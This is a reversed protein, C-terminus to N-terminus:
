KFKKNIKVHLGINKLLKARANFKKFSEKACYISRLLNKRYKIWQRGIEIMFVFPFFLQNNRYFPYRGTLKLWSETDTTKNMSTFIDNMLMEPLNDDLNSNLSIELGFFLHCTLLLYQYFKFLEISTITSDIYHFDLNDYYTNFFLVFDCLQRLNCGSYILHTALHIVMNIYEDELSLATLQIGGIEIVRVNDWIRELPFPNNRKKMYRPNWLTKHLEVTIYGLKYMEIHMHGPDNVDFGPPIQYGFSKMLEIAKPIDEIKVLLDLDCMSRLEPQPYLQKLVIGKLAIAPTGKAKFLGIINNIQAFMSLQQVAIMVTSKKWEEKIKEDLLGVDFKKGVLTYLYASVKQEMALNLLESQNVNHFLDSKIKQGNVASNILNLLKIQITNM